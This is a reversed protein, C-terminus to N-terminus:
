GDHDAGTADIPVDQRSAELHFGFGNSSVSTDM